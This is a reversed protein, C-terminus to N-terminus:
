NKERVFVRRSPIKAAVKAAATAAAAPCPWNSFAPVRPFVVDWKENNSPLFDM